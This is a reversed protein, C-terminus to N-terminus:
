LSQRVRNSGSFRRRSSVLLPHRSWVTKGDALRGRWPKRRAQYGDASTKVFATEADNTQAGGPSVPRAVQGARVKRARRQRTWRMGDWREHRHGVGRKLSSVASIHPHNPYFSFGIIKAVPVPSPLDRQIPEIFRRKRAVAKGTTEYRFDFCAASLQIKL